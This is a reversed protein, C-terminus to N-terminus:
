TLDEASAKLAVQMRQFLDKSMQVQMNVAKVKPVRPMYFNFKTLFNNVASKWTVSRKKRLRM